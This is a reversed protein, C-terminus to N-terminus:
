DQDKKHDDRSDQDLSCDDYDVNRHVLNGVDVKLINYVVRCRVCWSYYLSCNYSSHLLRNMIITRLLCFLHQQLLVTQSNYCTIVVM